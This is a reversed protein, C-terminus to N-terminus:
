GDAHQSNHSGSSSCSSMANPRLSAATLTQAVQRLSFGSLARKQTVHPVESTGAHAVQPASIGAPGTGDALSPVLNRLEELRAARVRALRREERQRHMEISRLAAGRESRAVPLSAQLQQLLSAGPVGIAPRSPFARSRFELDGLRKRVRTELGISM